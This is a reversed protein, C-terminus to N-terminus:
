THESSPAEVIASACHCGSSLGYREIDVTLGHTKRDFIGGHRQQVRQAVIEAQVSRAEPTAEALAAGAGYMEVAGYYTRAHKRCDCRGAVRHHRQLPEARRFLGM